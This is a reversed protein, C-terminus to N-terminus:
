CVKKNQLVGCDQPSSMWFCPTKLRRCHANVKADKPSVMALHIDIILCSITAEDKTTHHEGCQRINHLIQWGGRRALKSNDIALILCPQAM